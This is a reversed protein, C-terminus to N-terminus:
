EEKEKDTKEEKFVPKQKAIENSVESRIQKKNESDKTWYRHELTISDEELDKFMTEPKPRELIKEHKSTINEIVEKTKDLHKIPTKLEINTKTRNAKTYNRVVETTLKSNPIIQKESKSGNLHTTRINIEKIVGETDGIKIYDGKLFPNDTHIFIGAVVSSVQERMGFGIAVTLAAAITGLVTVLNGFNGVNLAITFTAFFGMLAAINEMSQKAKKSGKQALRGVLPMLIMRTLILGIIITLTFRALQIYISQSTLFGEIM